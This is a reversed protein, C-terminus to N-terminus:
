ESPEGSRFAAAALCPVSIFLAYANLSSMNELIEVVIKLSTLSDSGVRM